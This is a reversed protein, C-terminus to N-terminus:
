KKKAAAEWSRKTKKHNEGKWKDYFNDIKTKLFFIKKGEWDNLNSNEM